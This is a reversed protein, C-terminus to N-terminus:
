IAQEDLITGDNALLRVREIRRDVGGFPALGSKQRLGDVVHRLFGDAETYASPTKVDDRSVHETGNPEVCVVRLPCFRSLLRNKAEEMDRAPLGQQQLEYWYAASGDQFGQLYGVSTGDPKVGVWCNETQAVDNRRNWQM